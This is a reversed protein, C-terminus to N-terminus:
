LLSLACHGRVAQTGLGAQEWAAGRCQASGASAQTYHETAVSELDSAATSRSRTDVVM